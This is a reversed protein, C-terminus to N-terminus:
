SWIFITERIAAGGRGGHHLHHNRIQEISILRREQGKKSGASYKHTRTHTREGADANGKRGM